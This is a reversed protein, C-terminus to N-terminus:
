AERGQNIAGSQAGPQRPIAPPNSPPIGPALAPAPWGAPWNGDAHIRAQTRAAYEHELQRREDRPLDGSAGFLSHCGRTNVRDCCLPFCSRDDSKIGLGKHEDGHAAQSYGLVGCHACALKAVQMRYAVSRLPNEKPIPRVLTTATRVMCAGPTAPRPRPTYGDMQKAPRPTFKRLSM